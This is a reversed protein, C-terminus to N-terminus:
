ISGTGGTFDPTVDGDLCHWLHHVERINVYKDSSPLVVLATKDSGIFEKKVLKVDNWDPLWGGHRSVSIHWWRKDDQEIAASVIVALHRFRCAYGDELKKIVLWGLPIDPLPIGEVTELM